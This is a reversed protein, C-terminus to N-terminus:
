RQKWFFVEKVTIDSPMAREWRREVAPPARVGYAVVVPGCGQCRMQIARALGGGM